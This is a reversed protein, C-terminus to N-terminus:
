SKVCNFISKQIQVLSEDLSNQNLSIDIIPIGNKKANNIEWTVWYSHITSESNLLIMLDSSVLKHEVFAQKDTANNHLIDIFPESIESLINSVSKLYQQSIYHDRTTYSVFIKM